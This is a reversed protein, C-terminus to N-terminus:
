YANVPKKFILLTVEGKFRFFSYWQNLTLALGISQYWKKGVKTKAPCFSKYLRTYKM